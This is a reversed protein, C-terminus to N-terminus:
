RKVTFNPVNLYKWILHVIKWKEGRFESKLGGDRTWRNSSKGCM